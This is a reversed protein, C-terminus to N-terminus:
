ATARERKPVRTPMAKTKLSAQAELARVQAWLRETAEHASTSRAQGRLDDLVIPPGFLIQWQQRRRWGDTGRIAAPVLPVDAALATRAAGTRPAPSRGYRREGEPFIVVTEGGEALSAGASVGGPVGTGDHAPFAGLSCIFRRRLPRRFLQNKGMTRLRRPALAYAVAFVDFGSLHNPCVVVGGTAPLNEVGLVRPRFVLWAVPRFLTVALRYLLMGTSREYKM